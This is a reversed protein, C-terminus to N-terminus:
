KEYIKGPDEQFEADEGDSSVLFGRSDIDASKMEYGSGNVYTEFIKLIGPVMTFVAYRQPCDDYLHKLMRAAESISDSKTVMFELINEYAQHALLAWVEMEGVRHAGKNSGNNKSPQGIKGYLGVSRAFYKKSAEHELRYWYTHGISGVKEEGNFELTEKFDPRMCGYETCLKQLDEYTFKAFPPQVIEVIDKKLVDAVYKDKEEKTSKKLWDDFQANVFAPQALQLFGRIKEIRANTDLAKDHLERTCFLNNARNSHMEFLQGVNMRSSVSISSVVIDAVTDGMRPMERDEMIRSVVGKNGHRNSLKCGVIVPEEHVIWYTLFLSKGTRRRKSQPCYYSVYAEREYKEEERSFVSSICEAIENEKELEKHYLDEYFDGENKTRVIEDVIVRYYLKGAVPAFIEEGNSVVDMPNKPTRQRLVFIPTAKEVFTGQPYSIMGHNWIIPLNEECEITEEHVFRSSMKKACSESIILADKYNFPHSIYTTVLNKGLTLFGDRNITSHRALIDGKLFSDGKKFDSFLMKEFGENNGHLSDLKIVEGGGNEYKAIMLYKDNYVVSGKDKAYYLFSSYGLYQEEFGSRIFPIEANVLPISQRVHSCSMEMRICDNHSMFPVLRSCVDLMAKM